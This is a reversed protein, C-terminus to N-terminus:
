PAHIGLFRSTVDTKSGTRAHSRSAKEGYLHEHTHTYVQIRSARVKRKPAPLTVTKTSGPEAMEAVGGQNDHLTKQRVLIADQRKELEEKRKKRHILFGFSDRLRSRPLGVQLSGEASHARLSRGARAAASGGPAARTVDTASHEVFDWTDQNM